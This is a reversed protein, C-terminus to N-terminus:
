DYRSQNTYYSNSLIPGFSTSPWRRRCVKLYKLLDRKTRPLKYVVEPAQWTHDHSVVEPADLHNDRQLGDSDAYPITTELRQSSDSSRLLGM